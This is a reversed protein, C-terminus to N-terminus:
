SHIPKEIQHLICDELVKVHTVVQPTFARTAKTAKPAETSDTDPGYYYDYEIWDESQLTTALHGSSATTTQEDADATTPAIDLLM